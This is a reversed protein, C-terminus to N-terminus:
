RRRLCGSISAGGHSSRVGAAGRGPWDLLGASELEAESAVRYFDVHVLSRGNPLEVEQAITFTPSQVREPPIGLGAALGKVFRTKGAGLPGCLWVIAGAADIAGGLAAAYRETTEPDPSHLRM